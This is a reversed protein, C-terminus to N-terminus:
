KRRVTIAKNEFEYAPMYITDIGDVIYGPVEVAYRSKQKGLPIFMKIHGKKDTITERGDILVKAGGIDNEDIDRVGINIDGYMMPDRALAITIYRSLEIMSDINIYDELEGKASKVTIHVREGLFRRPINHFIVQGDITSLTDTKTENNLELSVVKPKMPPLMENHVTAEKTQVTINVTKNLETTTILAAIVMIAGIIWLVANRIMLRKHRQWISDFEVNLLKSILQVYARERNMWPWRYVREHINAGLIEPLGLKKVIPNFCETNPNGSHPIGEVIFFHINRTRGISHFYEIERGVWESKASNPSCIVILHESSRLRSKLEEDLGGPQIDTPAFFIPNLPKRKWGRKSCLTAPM